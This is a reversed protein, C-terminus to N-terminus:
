GASGPPLGGEPTRGRAGIPLKRGVLEIKLGNADRNAGHETMGNKPGLGMAEGKSSRLRSPQTWLTMAELQNETYERTFMCGV